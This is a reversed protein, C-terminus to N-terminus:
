SDTGADPCFNADSMLVPATVSAHQVPVTGPRPVSHPGAESQRPRIPIPQAKEHIITSDSGHASLSLGTFYTNVKQSSSHFSSFSEAFHVIKPGCFDILELIFHYSHSISKQSVM